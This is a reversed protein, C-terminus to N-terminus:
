SHRLRWGFGAVPTLIYGDSASVGIYSATVGIGGFDFKMSILAGAKVDTKLLTSLMAMSAALVVSLLRKM